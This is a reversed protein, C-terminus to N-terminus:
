SRGGGLARVVQSLLSADFGADVRITASGVAIVLSAPSAPLETVEAQRTPVVRLFRPGAEGSLRRSWAFLSSVSVGERSAFARASLGSTRWADIRSIWEQRKQKTAVRGM